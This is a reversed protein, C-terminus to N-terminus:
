WVVVAGEGEGTRARTACKSGQKGLRGNPKCVGFLDELIGESEIESRLVNRKHEELAEKLREKLRKRDEDDDGASVVHKIGLHDAIRELRRDLAEFRSDVGADIDAFRGVIRAELGRHLAALREDLAALKGASPQAPQLARTTHNASDGPRV